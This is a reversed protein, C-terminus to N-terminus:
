YMSLWVTRMRSCARRHFSSGSRSRVTSSPCRATRRRTSRPRQTSPYSRMRSSGTSLLWTYRPSYWRRPSRSYYPSPCRSSLFTACRRYNSCRRPSHPSSRTRSSHRSLWVTCRRTRATRHSTCAIWCRYRSSPRTSSQRRSNRQRRSSPCSRKHRWRTSMLVICRQTRATRSLSSGTRCPCRSSPRTASRPLTSCRRPSSRRTRM